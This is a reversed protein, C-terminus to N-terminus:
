ERSGQWVKSQKVIRQTIVGATGLMLVTMIVASLILGFTTKDLPLAIQLGGTISMESLTFDRYSETFAVAVSIVKELISDYLMATATLVIAQALLVVIASQTYVWRFRMGESAGIAYLLAAEDKKRRIYFMSFMLVAIAWGAASLAAIWTMGLRLNSLVPKFTSYGQDYFRFFDGYGDAISSIVAKTEEIKDNPVIITDLLPPGYQNGIRIVPTGDIGDFSTSPVIVTNPSIAYDDQDHRMGSYIGIIKYELPGTLELGPHYPNPVWATRGTESQLQGLTTIYMQMEITDGIKFSNTEALYESILCVRAGTEVDKKSIARGSTIRNLRQNFRLLSNSDSTTLLTLSNYSVGAVSLAASIYEGKDSALADEISGDIEFWTYGEYGLGPDPLPIQDWVHIPYSRQTVGQVGMLPRINESIDALSYAVYAEVQEYEKGLVDVYIAMPMNRNPPLANYWPPNDTFRDGGQHHNYGMIVYRKGEEVPFSGDPNMYPFYGTATQSPVRGHHLYLYQDVKFDAVISRKLARGSDTWQWEFVEEVGVCEAIFAAVSQPSNVIFIDSSINETDWIYRVSSVGDAYAGYVRRDDMQVLGSRYVNDSIRTMVQKHIHPMAFAQFHELIPFMDRYEELSQGADDPFQSFDDGNAATRVYRRIAFMDPVAITTIVDDLNKESIYV